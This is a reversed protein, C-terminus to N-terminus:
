MHIAPDSMRGMIVYAVDVRINLITYLIKSNILWSFCDFSTGWVYCLETLLLVIIYLYICIYERVQLDPATSSQALDCASLWPNIRSLAGTDYGPHDELGKLQSEAVLPVRRDVSDETELPEARENKSIKHPYHFFESFLSPKQPEPEAAKQQSRYHTWHQPQKHQYVEEDEPEAGLGEVGASRKPRHDLSSALAEASAASDPLSSSTITSSTSYYYPSTEFPAPSPTSSPPPSSDPPSPPPPSLASLLLSRRDYDDRPSFTNTPQAGTIFALVMVVLGPGPRM